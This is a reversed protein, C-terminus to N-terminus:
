FHRSSQTVLHKIPYDVITVEMSMSAAQIEGLEEIGLDQASVMSTADTITFLWLQTKRVATFAVTSSASGPGRYIAHKEPGRQYLSANARATAPYISVV